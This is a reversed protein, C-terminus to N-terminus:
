VGEGALLGDGDPRVHHDRDDSAGRGERSRGIGGETSARASPSM